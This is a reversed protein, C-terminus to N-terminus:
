GNQGLAAEPPAGPGRGLARLELRRWGEAGAGGTAALSVRVVCRVPPAGPRTFVLSSLLPSEGQRPDIGAHLVQRLRAEGDAVLEALRRGTLRPACLLSRAAENAGLIRGDPDVLLTAPDASGPAPTEPGPSVHTRRSSM